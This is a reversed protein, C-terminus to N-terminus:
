QIDVAVGKPIKMNLEVTPDIQYFCWFSRM